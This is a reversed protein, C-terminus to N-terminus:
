ISELTQNNNVLYRIFELRGSISRATDLIQGTKMRFTQNKM